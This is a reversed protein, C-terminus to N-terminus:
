GGCMSCGSTHGPASETSLSRTHAYLVLVIVFVQYEAAPAELAAGTGAVGVGSARRAEQGGPSLKSTMSQKLLSAKSSLSSSM